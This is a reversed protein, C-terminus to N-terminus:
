YLAEKVQCAIFKGYLALSLRSLSEIHVLCVNYLHSRSKVTRMLLVSMVSVHYARLTLM